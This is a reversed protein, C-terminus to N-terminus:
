SLEGLKEKLEMNEKILQEVEELFETQNFMNTGRTKVKKELRDLADRSFFIGLISGLFGVIITLFIHLVNTEEPKIAFYALIFLFCGWSLLIFAIQVFKIIGEPRKCIDRVEEFFWRFVLFLVILFIISNIVILDYLALKDLIM